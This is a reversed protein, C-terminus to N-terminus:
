NPGARRHMVLTLKASTGAAGACLHHTTSLYGPAYVVLSLRQARAPVALGGFAGDYGTYCRDKPAADIIVCAGAIPKQHIADVVTGNVRYSRRALLTTRVNRLLPMTDHLFWTVVTAALHGLLGRSNQPPRPPPQESMSVAPLGCSYLRAKPAPRGARLLPCATRHHAVPQPLIVM